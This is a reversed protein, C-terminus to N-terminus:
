PMKVTAGAPLKAIVQSAKGPGGEEDEWVEVAVLTDGSAKVVYGQKLGACYTGEITIEGGTPKVHPVNPATTDAGGTVTGHEFTKKTGKADELHLLLHASACDTNPSKANPVVDVIVSIPSVLTTADFAPTKSDEFGRESWKMEERVIHAAGKEDMRLTLTKEGHDAYRESRWRQVFTITTVGNAEGIKPADAKLEQRKKFMKERDARWTALDLKKEGGDPTRKIGQFSADYLAIYAEFAGDNQAKAWADLLTQAAGAPDVDAPKAASSSAAASSSPSPSPSPTSSVTTAPAPSDKKDCGATGALALTTALATTIAHLSSLRGRTSM